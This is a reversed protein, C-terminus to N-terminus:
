SNNCMTIKAIDGEFSYCGLFLSELGCGQRAFSTIRIHSCALARAVLITAVSFFHSLRLRGFCVSWGVFYQRSVVFLDFFIDRLIATEFFLGIKTNRLNHVLM